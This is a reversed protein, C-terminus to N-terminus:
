KGRTKPQIVPVLSIELQYVEDRNQGQALIALLESRMRNLADIARPLCASNVAVTTTSYGYRGAPASRVAQLTLGRVQELFREAANRAFGQISTTSNGLHDIWRDRDAMELLGLRILRQLAINVEDVSIGLVRALWRSDPKFDRVHILELIAYHHWDSILNATDQALQRVECTIAGDGADGPLREENEVFHEIANAELGLRVGFKRISRATLRRKGRLLQSLTSHDLGLYKAFARLSYQSNNACRRALESQLLHRFSREGRGTAKSDGVHIKM